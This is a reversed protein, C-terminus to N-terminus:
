DATHPAPQPPSGGALVERLAFGVASAIGATVLIEGGVYPNTDPALQFLHGVVVGIVLVILAGLTRGAIHKRANTVVFGREWLGELIELPTQADSYAGTADQYSHVLARFSSSHARKSSKM